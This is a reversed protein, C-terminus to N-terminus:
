RRYTGNAIADFDYPSIRLDHLDRADMMELERRTAIAARREGIWAFARGIREMVRSPTSPAAHHVTTNLFTAM